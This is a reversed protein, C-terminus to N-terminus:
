KRYMELMLKNLTKIVTGVSDKNSTKFGQEKMAKAIQRLGKGECNLQWIFKHKNETFKYDSLFYGALRYYEEKAQYYVQNKSVKAAIDASPNKIYEETKECDKFGSDKLKKYWKTQLDLFEKSNHKM